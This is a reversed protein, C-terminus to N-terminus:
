FVLTGPIRGPCAGSTRTAGEIRLEHVDLAAKAWRAFSHLSRVGARNPGPGQIHFGCLLAVSRGLFMVNASVEIDAQGDTFLGIFSDGEILLDKITWDAM